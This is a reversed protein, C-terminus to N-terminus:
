HWVFSLHSCLIFSSLFSINRVEQWIDNSIYWCGILIKYSNLIIYSESLQPHKQEAVIFFINPYFAGSLSSYVQFLLALEPLMSQEGVNVWENHFHEASVPATWWCWVCHTHSVFHLWRSKIFFTVFTNDHLYSSCIHKVASNRMLMQKEHLHENWECMESVNLFAQHAWRTLGGLM